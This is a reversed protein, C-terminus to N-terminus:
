PLTIRFRLAGVNSSDVTFGTGGLIVGGGAGVGITTDTPGPPGVPFAGPANICSPELPALPNRTDLLGSAGFAGLPGPLAVPASLALSGPVFISPPELEDCLQVDNVALAGDNFFYITYEVEDGSLLNTPVSLLGAPLQGGSAAILDDDDAGPGNIVASPDGGIEAASLPTGNRFVNTIRKVLQLDGVFLVPTPTNEDPENANANGNPDIAAQTGNNSLDDVPTNTFTGQATAEVQNEFPGPLPTPLTTSTQDVDVTLQLTASEGIDLTSTAAVLLEPTAGGDFGGNVTITNAGATQQLNQVQFSGAGFTPTLDESLQVTDLTEGGINEVVIEYVVRITDGGFAGTPAATTSVVRKSTGIAPTPPLRVPTPTSNNAPNGDGDEDADAGNDSTDSVNGGSTRGVGSANVQNRYIAPPAAPLPPSSNSDTVRVTIQVTGSAGVALTSNAADLLNTDTTGNFGGNATLTGATVTPGAAITFNGAGFTPNGTTPDILDEVLQVNDLPENGFNEVVVEYTIDLDDPNPTGGVDQIDIVRKAVGIAPLNVVTPDNETPSGNGDPDPDAGDDSEDTVPAGSPSQGTATVNNNFPGYGGAGAGPTVTVDFALTLTDGVALTRAAASGALLTTSTNGNFGGNISGGFGGPSAVIRPNSVTFGNTAAFTGTLNETVQVDDLAVEGLNEVVVTYPITFTGDPNQTPTGAQKAVGIIAPQFFVNFLGIGHNAPDAPSDPGNGYVLTTQDVASAYDAVINGDATDNQAEDTTAPPYVGTAVNGAIDVTLANTIGPTTTPPAPPPNTADSITPLVNTGGLSGDLTVQDQWGGLDDRDIDIVILRVGEVPIPNGADDLYEITLNVTEAVTDPDFQINLNNGAGLGGTLPSAADSLVTFDDTAGTWTFRLKVGNITAPDGIPTPFVQTIPPPDPAPATWNFTGWDLTAASASQPSLLGTAIAGALAAGWGTVSSRCGPQPLSLRSSLIDQFRKM